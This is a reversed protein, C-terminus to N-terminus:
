DFNVRDEERPEVGMEGKLLGEKKSDSVETVRTEEGFREEFKEMFEEETEDDLEYKKGNLVIEM